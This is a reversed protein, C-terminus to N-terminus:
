EEKMMLYINEPSFGHFEAFQFCWTTLPNSFCERQLDSEEMLGKEKLTVLSHQTDDIWMLRSFLSM